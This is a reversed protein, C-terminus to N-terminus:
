LFCDIVDEDDIQVFSLLSSTNNVASLPILCCCLICDEDDQWIALVFFFGFVCFSLDEEEGKWFNERLILNPKKKRQGKKETNLM